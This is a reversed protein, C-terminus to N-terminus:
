KRDIVATGKRGEERERERGGKSYLKTKKGASWIRRSWERLTLCVLGEEKRRERGGERVRGGERSLYGSVADLSEGVSKVFEGAKGDELHAEGRGGERGGERRECVRRRRGGERGKWM